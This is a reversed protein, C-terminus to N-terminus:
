EDAVDKKKSAALNECDLEAGEGKRGWVVPAINHFRQNIAKGGYVGGIQRIAEGFISSICGTNRRKKGTGNVLDM